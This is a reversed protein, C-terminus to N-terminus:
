RRSSIIQKLFENSFSEKLIIILILYLFASSIILIIMNFGTANFRGQMNDTFIYMIISSLFIKLLNMLDLSEKIYNWGYFTQFSLVCLETLVTVGAAGIYGYRPIFIFSFAVNIIMAITISINYEKQKGISVLLTTGTISSFGMLLPLCALIKMVNISSFYDVGLFLPIFNDSIAFIGFAMPFALLVVANFAKKLLEFIQTKKHISNYYTIRPLLVTGLATMLTVILKIVKEPQSYYGVQLDSCFFGLMTKNINVYITNSIASWSFALSYRFHFALKNWSSKIHRNIKLYPWLFLNGLLVSGGLILAYLNLDNSDKVCIFILLISGVKVIVNKLVSKSFEELGQFYWTIDFFFAIVNIYCIIFLINNEALILFFGFVMSTLLFYIVKISQITLLLEKCLKDENRYSAVERQGYSNIGLNTMMIFYSIISYVYNYEGINKPGLVRSVYPTTIIPAIIVLIQYLLNWIFNIKISKNM